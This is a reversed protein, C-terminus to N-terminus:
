CSRARRVAPDARLRAAATTAAPAAARDDHRAPTRRRHEDPRRRRRVSASSRLLDVLSVLMCSSRALDASMAASAAWTSTADARHRRDPLDRHPDGHRARGPTMLYSQGFMNASAIITVCRSSSAAGAAPGPLTVNRFRQWASAGDMRPRRTSSRAPHGAAGALYIVANFGLTWWVTVGVLSSGRRVADLHAVRHRRAARARRPLPQGARHQQRAPLAVARGVVAVGLVYPAFYM